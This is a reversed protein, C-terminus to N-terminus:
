IHEYSTRDVRAAAIQESLLMQQLDPMKLALFHAQFLGRISYSDLFRKLQMPVSSHNWGHYSMFVLLVPTNKVNLVQIKM